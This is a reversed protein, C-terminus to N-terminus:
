KRAPPLDSGQRSTHCAGHAGTINSFVGLRPQIGIICCVVRDTSLSDGIHVTLGSFRRPYHAERLGHRVLTVVADLDTHIFSGKGEDDNRLCRYGDGDRRCARM